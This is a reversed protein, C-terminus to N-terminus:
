GLWVWRQEDHVARRNLFKNDAAAATVHTDSTIPRSLQAVVRGGGGVIIIISSSILHHSFATLACALVLRLLRRPAHCAM